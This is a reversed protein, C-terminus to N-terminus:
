SSPSPSVGPSQSKYGFEVSLREAADQVTRGTDLMKQIPLRWIPASIGIAGVTRGVYNKVPAAVCRLEPDLEGDDYALGQIQVQEIERRLQDPEVISRETRRTLEGRNLYHAFVDPQMAALLIKGLATCNAPRITGPNEMIQFPGAGSTRALVMVSLGSRVAFHSSEGTKNSLLELVPTAINVMEVEDFASAALAFLLRGIRYRKSHPDQHVYGASVMTRVLHFTTSNHLGVRKSLEALSIGQRERAIVEMISFAREISQVGGRASIENEAEVFSAIRAAFQPSSIKVESRRPATKRVKSTTPM